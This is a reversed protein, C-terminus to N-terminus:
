NDGREALKQSYIDANSIGTTTSQPQREKIQKVRRDLWNTFTSKIMKKPDDHYEPKALHEVVAEALDNLHIGYKEALSKKNEIWDRRSRESTFPKWRWDQSLTEEFVELNQTKELEITNNNYNNYNTNNNTYNTYNTNIITNDELDPERVLEGEKEETEACVESDLERFQEYTTSDMVHVSDTNLLYRNHETKIVLNDKGLKGLIEYVTSRKMKSLEILDSTNPYLLEAICVLLWRKMPHDVEAELAWSLEKSSM